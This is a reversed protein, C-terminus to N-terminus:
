LELGDGGAISRGQRAGVPWFSLEYKEQSELVALDYNAARGSACVRVRHLGPTGVKFAVSGLGGAPLFYLDGDIVLDDEAAIEWGALGDALSGPAEELARVAVQVGGTACGTFVILSSGEPMVVFLRQASAPDLVPSLDAAAINLLHYDVFVHERVEMAKM